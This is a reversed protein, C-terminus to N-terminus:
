TRCKGMLGTRVAHRVNERRTVLELNELNNDVKIGNKHNVELGPYRDINMFVIAMWRHTTRVKSVGNNYLNTYPYGCTNLAQKLERVEGSRHWNLSRIRGETSIEYNPFGPIAKWM